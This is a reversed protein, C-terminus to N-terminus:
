FAVTQMNLPTLTQLDVDRRRKWALHKVPCIDHLLRNSNRCQRQHWHCMGGPKFTFLLCYFWSCHFGLLRGASCKYQVNPAAYVASSSFARMVLDINVLYQRLFQLRSQLFQYSCLPERKKCKLAELVIFICRNVMFHRSVYLDFYKVYFIIIVYRVNSRAFNKM